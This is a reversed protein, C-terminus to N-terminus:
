VEDAEDPATLLAVLEDTGLTAAEGTGELLGEVLARKEGHLALIKEEITGKAVLRYVTVPQTQGIRHARDSAQDEVAPNWWPDLHIVYTAATLTLGTGGAKLSILFVDGEGRQFADVEARRKAEPTEGDLYRLPVGAATLVERVLALQRTFQSFVLARHGEERLEAVIEVLRGLKSSPVTTEPDLLRPHCALQRLRTLAALVKFRRQEPPGADDALQAAFTARAADYLQREERSLLVEVNVDTRPPLERAVESKVRRLLFPRILRALAARRRTDGDREIASAFRTRFREWSGLLGPAVVRFLSWLESVRNEVPTGTLAVRFDAVLRAAAKARATTANKMAQAEDLVATGFRVEALADIDRPLLDWSTVLVDGPGLDALMARRDAGRLARVRLGPAFRAAERIWNFGVSTPAVILAPGLEARHVLLALAQVTKGLGMDDALCAGPAWRALRAMWAFGARQYDRLEAALGAPVEPEWGEAARARQILDDWGMPAEIAAGAAQLGDLVPAALKPVEAGGGGAEAVEAVAALQASLEDGIRVWSEGDVAVYRRGALVASLLAGLQVTAGDVEIGGGVDLWDRASTVQLRLDRAGVTKTRRPPGAWEVVIPRGQLASALDLAAEADGLTWTFAPGEAGAPLPLGAIAARVRGPEAARVRQVHVRGEGVGAHLEDPGEGPPFAPGGALPRVLATVLLGGEGLPDLRLLPRDDPEKARGRLQPAVRAPIVRSLPELRALLAEAAEAPFVQGRRALAHVFAATARDSAFVDFGDDDHLVYWGDDGLLDALEEAEIPREGVRLGVRVGGDDTPNWDAGIPSRRVPVRESGLFVRPHGVLRSLMAAFAVGERDALLLDRVDRDAPSSWRAPAQVLEDLTVKTLKWGEGRKKPRCWLPTVEARDPDVRWGPVGDDPEETVLLADLDALARRWAPTGLVERLWAREPHGPRGLADHLSDLATLGLACRAEGGCNCTLLPEDAGAQLRVGAISAGGRDCVRLWSDRVAWTPPDESRLLVIREAEDSPIPLVQERLVRRAETVREWLARLPAEEPPARGELAAREDLLARAVRKAREDLWEVAAEQIEEPVADAGPRRPAATVVDAITASPARWFWHRARGVVRDDLVRAGRALEPTVQRAEAWARLAALSMGPALVAGTPAVNVGARAHAVDAESAARGAGAREAGAPAVEPAKALLGDRAAVGAMWEGLDDLVTRAVGRGLADWVRPQELLARPTGCGQTLALRQVLRLTLPSLGSAEFWDLLRADLVPDLGLRTASAALAAPTDNAGLAPHM